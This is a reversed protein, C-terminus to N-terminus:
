DYSTIDLGDASIRVLHEKGPALELAEPPSWPADLDARWSIEHKGPKLKADMRPAVFFERGAIKVHAEQLSDLRLKVLVSAAAADESPASDGDAAGVAADDGDAGAASDPAAPIVPTEGEDEDTRARGEDAGARDKSPREDGQADSGARASKAASVAPAEGQADDSGALFRAAGLGAALVALAVTSLILVTRTKRKRDMQRTALSTNTEEDSGFRPITGDGATPRTADGPNVSASAPGAGPPTAPSSAPAAPHVHGSPAGLAPPKTPHGAAADTAAFARPGHHKDSAAAAQGSGSARPGSGSAYPGSGSAQPGSGSAQPGSEPPHPGSGAQPGSGSDSGPHRDSAARGRRRGKRFYIPADPEPGSEPAELGSPPPGVTPQAEPIAPMQGDGVTLGTRRSQRFYRQYMKRLEITANRWQACQHLQLLAEDASRIRREPEPELLGGYLALLEPPVEDRTLPPVEDTMLARVWDERTDAGDRFRRGELLEYLITGVAFLDSAQVPKGQFQEPAMYRLKGKVHMQSTEEGIVRAIGFDALKIEGSSSIMVNQPSIDRHIIGLPRGGIAFTHAYQLAHLLEGVIHCVVPISFRMPIGHIRQAFSRLDVGDVWDLAMYLRGGDEGADFVSVINAHSLKLALRAEQLFMKRYREDSSVRELPLKLACSKTAGGIGERRALWVEAMGGEGVKEVLEYGGVKAHPELSVARGMSLPNHAALGANAM